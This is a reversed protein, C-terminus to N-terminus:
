YRPVGDIEDASEVSADPATFDLVAQATAFAELPDDTVIVGTEAGGMCVGLDRGIWDHGARELAGSLVARDSAMVTQSLMRGMRGSAGTVIINPRDTM